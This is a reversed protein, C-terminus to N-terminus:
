AAAAMIVSNILLLPQREASPRPQITIKLLVKVPKPLEKATADVHAAGQLEAKLPDIRPGPAINVVDNKKGDEEQLFFSLVISWTADLCNFMFIRLGGSLESNIIFGSVAVYVMLGLMIINGLGLAQYLREKLRHKLFTGFDPAEERDRTLTDKIVDMCIIIFFCTPLFFGQYITSCLWPIIGESPVVKSYVEMLEVFFMPAAVFFFGSFIFVRLFDYQKATGKKKARHQVYLNSLAFLIPAIVVVPGLGFNEESYFTDLFSWLNALANQTDMGAWASICYAAALTSIIGAVVSLGIRIRRLCILFDDWLVEKLRARAKKFAFYKASIFILDIALILSVTVISSILTINGQFFGRVGELIVPSTLTIGLGAASIPISAAFIVKTIMEKPRFSNSMVATYLASYVAVMGLAMFWGKYSFVGIAVEPWFLIIAGVIGFIAFLIKLARRFTQETKDIPINEESQNSAEPTFTGKHAAPRLAFADAPLSTIILAVSLIIAIFKYM